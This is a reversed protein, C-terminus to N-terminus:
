KKNLTLHISESPPGWHGSADLYAIRYHVTGSLPPDADVIVHTGAIDRAVTTWLGQDKKRMVSALLHEKPQDFTIVVRRFPKEEFELKPTKPQPIETSKVIIFLKNSMKSFHESKDVAILAYWYDEGPTVRRDEYRTESGHIDTDIVMGLDRISNGRVLLFRKIQAQPPAKFKLHVMGPESSIDALFPVPIPQYGALKVTIEKSYKSRKNDFSVAVIRYNRKGFDGLNIQDDFHPLTILSSNLRVWTNSQHTKKEVIYGRVPLPEPHWSLHINTPSVKARLKKPADPASTSTIMVSIPDPNPGVKGRLGVARVRYYYNFGSQVGRDHFTKTTPPLGRPTLVEYIGQSRRSREVVYGTTYPNDNPQWTIKAGKTEPTVTINGPPKLADSDTNLILVSSAETYRGFIDVGRVTYTLESELPATNDIFSPQNEEQVNWIPDSNLEIEKGDEGHRSIQVTPVPYSDDDASGWYLHIHNKSSKAYLNSVPPSLPSPQWADIPRSSIRKNTPTNKGNLLTLTYSHSGKPLGRLVTAMGLKEAAEFDVMAGMLLWSLQTDIKKQDKEKSISEMFPQLKEQRDSSFSALGQAFDVATWRSLIKPSNTQQIQWGGGTYLTSAPPWFLAIEGKGLSVVKLSQKVPTAKKPTAANIQPPSLFIATALIISLSLPFLIKGLTNCTHM